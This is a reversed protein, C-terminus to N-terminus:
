TTRGSSRGSVPLDRFDLQERAADEGAITAHPDTV